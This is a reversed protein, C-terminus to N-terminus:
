IKQRQPNNIKEFRADGKRSFAFFPFYYPPEVFDMVRARESSHFVGSCMADIRGSELAAPFDALGIERGVRNLALRKASANV